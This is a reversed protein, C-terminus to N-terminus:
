RNLRYGYAHGSSRGRQRLLLHVRPGPLQWVVRRKRWLGVAACQQLAACLLSPLSPVAAAQSHVREGTSAGRAVPLARRQEASSAFGVRQVRQQPWSGVRLWKKDRRRRM